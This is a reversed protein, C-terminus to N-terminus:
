SPSVYLSFPVSVEPGSAAKCLSDERRWLSSSLNGSRRDHGVTTSHLVGLDGDVRLGHSSLRHHPGPQHQIWLGPCIPPRIAYHASRGCLKHIPGCISPQVDVVCSGDLARVHVVGCRISGCNWIAWPGNGCLRSISRLPPQWTTHSLASCWLSRRHVPICRLLSCGM